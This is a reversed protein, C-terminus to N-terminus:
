QSRTGMVRLLKRYTCISYKSKLDHAEYFTQITNKFLSVGCLDVLIDINQMLCGHIKILQDLWYINAHTLSMNSSSKPNQKPTKQRVAQISAHITRICGYKFVWIYAQGPIIKTPYTYREVDKM